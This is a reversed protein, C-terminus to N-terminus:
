SIEERWSVQYIHVRDEFGRLATEGRDSFPFKKGAVIQRVAESALIEGGEAKAAIRAALNVATGFLDDDEAIPEGANLGIRIHLPELSAGADRDARPSGTSGHASPGPEARGELAERGPSDGKAVPHASLSANREEFARQMAIACELAKTASSFSAMFGDGLAKVEAGGHAKLAERVMREHERLLDRAKADGLRQTLATSGEVDTFLVTRFASAEPPEAGAAHEGGEDLFEDIARLVEEVNGVDFAPSTGEVLSLRADPIRSALDTAISVGHFHALRRHLVLTPSRVQPLIDTVDVGRMARIFAQMAEQTITERYHEAAGRAQEGESWGFAVHAATETYTYWDTDILRGLARLEPSAADRTRAWTHWLVLHSVREPHRAAYAIAVPGSDRIAFLAFRDLHLHDVVAELDLVLYELSFDTVNRQSLGTGRSDYRVLKRKRVQHDHWSRLEPSLRQVNGAPTVPMEVFPMGEGLTWFAISVGDKTKAYQIRPEM